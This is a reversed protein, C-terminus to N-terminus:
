QGSWIGAEKYFQVAGPHHPVGYDAAMKGPDLAAFAPVIAALADKNDHITRAMAAVTEDDIDKGAYILFPYSMTWMPEPVAVLGPRPMVKFPAMPPFYARIAAVAEESPDIPLFRLDGVEAAVKASLGSGVVSIVADTKGAAFDQNAQRINATPVAVIDALTLGANALMAKSAVAIVPGSSFETALRKGRLDKISTMGSDIRVLYGVRSPYTPGVLRLNPNPQGEFTGKGHYAYVLELPNAIGFALEGSDVLPVVQATGGFTQVRLNLTTSEVAVKAIALAQRNTVTGAPSSGIGVPEASVAPGAAASLVVGVLARAWWKMVSGGLVLIIRSLATMWAAFSPM